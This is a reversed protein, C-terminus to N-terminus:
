EEGKKIATWYCYEIWGDYNQESNENDSFGAHQTFLMPITIGVNFLKNKNKYIIEHSCCDNIFEDSIVKYYPDGPVNYNKLTKYFYELFPRKYLFAQACLANSVSGFNEDNKVIKSDILPRAGMAILDYFEVFKDWKEFINDFDQQTVNNMIKIDDEFVVLTELNEDLAIKACDLFSQTAGYRRWEEDSHIVGEFYEYGDFGISKLLSNSNEKRDKRHPLNIVLGKDAIKKGKYTLM